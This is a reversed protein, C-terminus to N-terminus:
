IPNEIRKKWRTGGRLYKKKARKQKGQNRKEVRRKKLNDSVIHSHDLFTILKPEDGLSIVTVLVQEEWKVLHIASNKDTRILNQKQCQGKIAMLDSWSAEIGYREKLREQAHM